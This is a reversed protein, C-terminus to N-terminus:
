VRLADDRVALEDIEHPRGRGTQARPLIGQQVQVHPTAETGIVKRLGETHGFGVEVGLERPELVRKFLGDGDVEKIRRARLSQGSSSM